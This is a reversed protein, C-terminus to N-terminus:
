GIDKGRGKDKSLDQETKDMREKVQERIAENSGAKLGGSYGAHNRSGHMVKDLEPSNWKRLWYGHEFGKKYVPDVKQDDQEM